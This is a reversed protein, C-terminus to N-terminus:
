SFVRIQFLIFFLLFLTGAMNINSILRIGRRLGTMASAFAVSGLISVVLIILWIGADLNLLFRVSEAIQGSGLGISAVLGVITAMVALANIILRTHKNNHLKPLATSTLAPQKERYHTYAIILGFVAYFAWANFGWHFFAYQLAHTVKDSAEISANPPNNYYYIPEQVARQILGAGMGASYLMAIWSWLSYEPKSNDGGLRQRGIPLCALVICFVIFGFGIALYFGGFVDIIVANVATSQELVWEPAIFAPIIFCICAILCTKLLTNNLM